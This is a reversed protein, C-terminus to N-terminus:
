ALDRPDFCKHKQLNCCRRLVNRSASSFPHRALTVIRGQTRWNGYLAFVPKLPPLQLRCKMDKGSKSVGHGIEDTNLLMGCLTSIWIMGFEVVVINVSGGLSAGLFCSAGPAAGERHLFAHWVAAM